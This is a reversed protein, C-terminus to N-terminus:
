TIQLERELEKLQDELDSVMDAYEDVKSELKSIEKNLQEIERDQEELDSVLNNGWERLSSNADRLQELLCRNGSSIDDIDSIWENTSDNIYKVVSQLTKIAYDIDPCTHKIPESRNTM